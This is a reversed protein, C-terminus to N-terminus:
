QNDVLHKDKLKSVKKFLDKVLRLDEESLMGEKVLKSMNSKNPEQAMRKLARALANYVEHIARKTEADAEKKTDSNKNSSPAATDIGELGTGELEKLNSIDYENLARLEEQIIEILRQREIKM